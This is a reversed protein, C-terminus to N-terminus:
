SNIAHGIEAYRDLMPLVTDAEAAPLGFVVRNFGMAVLEAVRDRDPGLGFITLDPDGDRGAQAWLERLTTIGAAYDLAGQAVARSADQHIPFWGDGYEAIRPFTWRSSAGLLVKPGGPQVPKPYAWLPDFDVYDGHFEAEEQTWIERMALIRERLVKWRTAFAVGHNAMEEVNWGAGVGLLVRGLSLDDLTAVLKALLIPFRATVLVIVTGLKITSTVAAATALGVFPDHTHWYEQPLERGGPWPTERSAPIHTHEPVFVSEFGRAEAARALDAPTMSYDTAFMFVGFDPM